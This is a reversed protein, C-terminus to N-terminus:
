QFLRREDNLPSRFVFMLQGNVAFFRCWRQLLARACPVIATASRKNGGKGTRCCWAETPPFNYQRIIPHIIYNQAITAMDHDVCRGSDHPIALPRTRYLRGSWRAMMGHWARLCSIFHPPTNQLLPIQLFHFIPTNKTFFLPCKRLAPHM